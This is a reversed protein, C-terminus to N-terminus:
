GVIYYSYLLRLNSDQIGWLLHGPCDGFGNIDTM